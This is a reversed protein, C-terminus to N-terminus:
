RVISRPTAGAMTALAPPDPEPSRPLNREILRWQRVALLCKSFAVEGRADNATRQIDVQGTALDVERVEAEFRPSTRRAYQVCIAVDARTQEAYEPPWTFGCTLLVTCGLVIARIM